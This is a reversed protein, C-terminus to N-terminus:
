GRLSVAPVQNSSGQVLYLPASTHYGHWQICSGVRVDLSTGTIDLSNFTIEHSTAGVLDTLVMAGAHLPQSSRIELWQYSSLATGKPLTLAMVHGTSVVDVSGREARVVRHVVGDPTTVSRAHGKAVRGAAGPRVPLPSMTGDANLNYLAADKDTAPITLDFGSATVATSQLAEAVDPRDQEPAVSAVVAGNHVAVVESAPKDVVDDAAWGSVVVSHSDVPRVTMPEVPGSPTDGPIQLFNPIDGWDCPPADFYLGSTLALGKLPPVSAVKGVLDSRLMLLQGDVDAFPTYNDLIYQSVGYHRVMNEVMDWAPLGNSNDNFVVLRPRSRELDSVLLHQAYSPIAMSVHFFRTGPVRALLYYMIGPDNTFDFVPGDSGAYKDFVTKLDALMTLNVADPESYGLRPAAPEAPVVSQFQVATSRLSVLSAPSAVVVGVIAACTTLRVPMWVGIWRVGAGMKRALRRLADTVIHDTTRLAQFVWLLVLPICVTFAEGIHAVDARGLEKPFYLGAWSAAAVTTWDFTTWPRRTRLKWVMRWYTCLILLVPLFFEITVSPMHVLSWGTPIAGSLAHGPGFIRYYDVFGSLAGTGALFLCFSATMAAGYLACWKTRFLARGWPVARSRTFLEFVILTGLMGIALLGVEPTVISEIILAAMFLACWSRSRRRLVVDFLILLLPALGFRDALGGFLGLVLAVGVGLVAVRNRRSFHLAFFYFVIPTIPSVFLSSGASAGWRDNVFIAMGLGYQFVDAMLGHIFFLDKWPFFGHFVLQPAALGQSDDFGQFHGFAGPLGAVCLFILVPAVVLTVVSRELSGPTPASRARRARLGIWVGLAVTWPVVFWVPLWQYHAVRHDSEVIVKTSYSVVALLPVVSLAAACRFLEAGWGEIPLGKTRRARQSARSRRSILASILLVAVFYLCGVTFGVRTPVRFGPARSASVELGVAVAPLGIRVLLGLVSYVNNPREEADHIPSEDNEVTVPWMNRQPRDPGRRLPGWRGLVLYAVFILVPVVFVVVYYGDFYRNADFNAFIPYGVVDTKVHLANPVGLWLLRAVGLGLVCSVVFRIVTRVQTSTM